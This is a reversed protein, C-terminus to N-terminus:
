LVGLKSYDVVYYGKEDIGVADPMIDLVEQAIVGENYGGDFGEIWDWTYINFGNRVEKFQINTKLRRDSKLLGAGAGFMTGVLEMNQGRNASAVQAMNTAYNSNTNALSTAANTSTQAATGASQGAMQLYNQTGAYLGQGAQAVQTLGSIGQLTAANQLNYSQLDNATTVGYINQTAGLGTNYATTAGSIGAQYQQGSLALQNQRLADSQSIAQGYAQQTASAKALAEQQYNSALINSEVGSGALGKRALTSELGKRAEQYASSIGGLAQGTTRSLIDQNATGMSTKATELEKSYTDTYGKISDTFAKSLGTVDSGYQKTLDSNTKILGNAAEQFQPTASLITDRLLSDISVDKISDPSVTKGTIQSKLKALANKAETDTGERFTKEYYSRDEASLNYQEESIKTLSDLNNKQSTWLDLEQQTPTRSSQGSAGSKGGGGM